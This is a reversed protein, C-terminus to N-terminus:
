LFYINLNAHQTTPICTLYSHQTTSNMNFYTHQKQYYISFYAHMSTCTICTTSPLIYAIIHVICATKVLGRYQIIKGKINLTTDMIHISTSRRWSFLQPDVHGRLEGQHLQELEHDWSSSFILSNFNHKLAYSTANDTFSIYKSQFFLLINLFM